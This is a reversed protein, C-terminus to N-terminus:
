TMTRGPDASAHGHHHAHAHPHSSDRASDGQVHDFPIGNGSASPEGLAFVAGNPVGPVIRTGFARVQRKLVMAPWNGFEAQFARLLAAATPTVTEGARPIGYVPMGELLILTAPAPTSLLGHACSVVGDSVPLPGCVFRSPGIGAFLEAALCVDLISDLAGVEHFTVAEADVGHVAAEARALEGFAALALERGRPSMGSEGILERIDAMATHHHVHPLRIECGYGSIGSVARPVVRLAGALEPIGLRGVAAEVAAADLGALRSLGAVFMDGSIGSPARLVLVPGCARGSHLDTM